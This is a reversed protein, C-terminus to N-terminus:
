QIQKAVSYDNVFKIDDAWNKIALSFDKDFRKERFAILGQLHEIIEYGNMINNDLIHKLINRRAETNLGNKGASYGHLALKSFQQFEDTVLPITGDNSMHLIVNPYFNQKHLWKLQVDSIYYKNTVQNYAVLMNRQANNNLDKVLIYYDMTNHKDLNLFGSFVNLVIQKNSFNLTKVNKNYGYRESTNINYKEKRHTKKSSVTNYTSMPAFSNQFTKKNKICKLSYPVCSGERLICHHHKYYSCDLVIDTNWNIPIDDMTVDYIPIDRKLNLFANNNKNPIAKKKKNNKVESKKPKKSAQKRHKLSLEYIDYNDINLNLEQIENLIKQYNNIHFYYYNCKTCLFGKYRKNKLQQIVVFEQLKERCTPCFYDYPM